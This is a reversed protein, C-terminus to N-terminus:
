TSGTGHVDGGRTAVGTGGLTVDTLIKEHIFGSLQLASIISALPVRFVRCSNRKLNCSILRKHRAALRNLVENPCICLGVWHLGM